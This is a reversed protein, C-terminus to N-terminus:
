VYLCVSLCVGGDVYGGQCLYYHAFCPRFPQRDVLALWLAMLSVLLASFCDGMGTSLYGM